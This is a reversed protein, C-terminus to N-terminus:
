LTDQEALDTSGAADEPVASFDRALRWLGGLSVPETGQRINAAGIEFAIRWQRRLDRYARLLSTGPDYIHTAESTVGNLEIIKFSRGERIAELDPGRIDYRGFFFGPYTRSIADIREELAPTLVGRGDRFLAGRCHTGVHILSVTEGAPPIDALRAQHLRLFYPAMCVARPHALILHELTHRGDGTVRPFQKETVSWVVGRAEDPYRYYFVGFEVGPVYEQVLLDRGQSRIVAEVERITNAVVVGQGRQGVDPKIVIPLELQHLRLFAWVQELRLRVSADAAICATQAVFPEADKLGKLIDYKSEGIFGGAPISPNCATFTTLGRFRVGLVLLYIAV